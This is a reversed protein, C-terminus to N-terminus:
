GKKVSLCCLGSWVVGHICSQNCISVGVEEEEHLSSVLSEIHPTAQLTEPLGEKPPSGTSPPGNSKGQQPLVSASSSRTKKTHHKYEKDQRRRLEEQRKREEEQHKRKKKEEEVQQKAKRKEEQERQKTKKKEEKDQNKEASKGKKVERSSMAVFELREPYDKTSGGSFTLSRKSRTEHHESGGTMATGVKTTPLKPQEAPSDKLSHHASHTPASRRKKDDKRGGEKGVGCEAM